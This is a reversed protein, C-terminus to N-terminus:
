YILPLSVEVTTGKNLVSSISVNGGHMEVIKKTAYLGVGSELPDFSKANRGRFFKQFIHEMDTSDIGIGNDKVIIKVFSSEKEVSIFVKSRPSYRFANDFINTLVIGIMKEDANIEFLGKEEYDLSIEKQHTLFSLNSIVKKILDNLFFNNKNLQINDENFNEESSKLIEGIMEISHVIKSLAETLLDKNACDSNKIVSEIAWRAGALSTRLQHVSATLFINKINDEKM